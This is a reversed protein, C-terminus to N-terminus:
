NNEGAVQYFINGRRQLTLIDDDTGSFNGSLKMNAGDTFQCSGSFEIYFVTWNPLTSAVSISDVQTTGSVLFNNFQGFTINTTSAVTDCVSSVISSEVKFSGDPAFVIHGAQGDSDVSTLTPGGDSSLTWDAYNAANGNADNYTYRIGGSTGFNVELEKDTLATKIGVQGDDTEVILTEVTNWHFEFQNADTNWRVGYTAIGGQMGIINRNVDPFALIGEKSIWLSSDGVAGDVDNIFRALDVAGGNGNVHLWATPTSTGIGIYGSNYYVIGGTGNFWISGEWGDQAYVISAFLFSLVFVMLIKKM